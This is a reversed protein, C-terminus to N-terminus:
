QLTSTSYLELFKDETTFLRSRVVYLIEETIFLNKDNIFLSFACDTYLTFEDKLKDTYFDFFEKLIKIKVITTAFDSIESELYQYKMLNFISYPKEIIVNREIILMQSRFIDFSYKGHYFKFKKIRTNVSIDDDDSFMIWDNDDFTNVNLIHHFHEFQLKKQKHRYFIIRLNTNLNLIYELEDLKSYIFDEYSYSIYCNCYPILAYKVCDSISYIADQITQYRYKNLHSAVFIHLNM